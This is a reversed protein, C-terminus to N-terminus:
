QTIVERYVALKGTLMSEPAFSARVTPLVLRMLCYAHM